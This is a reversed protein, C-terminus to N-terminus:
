PRARDGAPEEGADPAATFPLGLPLHRPCRATGAPHRAVLRLLSSPRGAPHVDSARELRRRRQVGDSGPFIQGGAPPFLPHFDTQYLDLGQGAGPAPLCIPQEAPGHLQPRRFPFQHQGPQTQIEPGPRHNRGAGAHLGGGPRVLRHLGRSPSRLQHAPRGAGSGPFRPGHRFVTERRADQARFPLQVPRGADRLQLQIYYLLRDGSVYPVAGQGHQVLHQRGQRGPDQLRHQQAPRDDPQVARVRRDRSRLPLRRWGGDRDLAAPPQRGHHVPSQRQVPLRGWRGQPVLEPHRFDPRLLLHRRGLHGAM